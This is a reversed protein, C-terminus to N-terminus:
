EWILIINMIKLFEEAVKQQYIYNKKLFASTRYTKGNYIKEEISKKAM